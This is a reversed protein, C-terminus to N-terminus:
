APSRTEGGALSPRGALCEVYASAYRDAMARGTFCEAYRVYAAEALRERRSPDVIAAALGDALANANRAPVLIATEDHALVSTNEGVTTAVIPRRAAMAELIVVSMAEWYSSQVFIDFTPLLTKAGDPKWGTFEVHGALGLGAVIEELERRMPGEGVLVLRFDLGRDRVIKAAELLTPLGKQTGFTSVSGIRLRTGRSEAGIQAPRAECDVGNWITRIRSSPVRLAKIISDRQENGVAVLQDPVRAFLGEMLLHKWPVHPYNGFHFTHMHAFRRTWLRCIGVDILSRLDHSHVIDIDRDAILRALRSATSGGGPGDAIETVVDFGERVLEAQVEGGRHIIAISIRHGMARLHRALTAIVHEAGGGFLSGNVLM